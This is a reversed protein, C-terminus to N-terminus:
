LPLSIVESCCYRDVDVAHKMMYSEAASVVRADPRPQVEAPRGCTCPTCLFKRVFGIFGLLGGVMFTSNIKKELKKM